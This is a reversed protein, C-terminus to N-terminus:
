GVIEYVRPRTLTYTYECNISLMTYVHSIQLSFGVQEHFRELIRAFDIIWYWCSYIEDVATLLKIEIQCYLFM